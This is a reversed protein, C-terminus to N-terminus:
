DWVREVKGSFPNYEVQKGMRWSGRDVILTKHEGFSGSPHEHQLLTEELVEISAFDEITTDSEFSGYLTHQHIGEGLLITQKKMKQKM